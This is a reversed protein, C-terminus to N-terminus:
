FPTTSCVTTGVNPSSTVTCFQTTGLGEGVVFYHLASDPQNLPVVPAGVPITIPLGECHVTTPVVLQLGCVRNGVVDLFLSATNFSNSNVNLPIVGDGGAPAPAPRKQATASASLVLLAAVALGLGGILRKSM